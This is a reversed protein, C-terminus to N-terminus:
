VRVTQSFVHIVIVGAIILGMGIVAPTDTIERFAVAGVIALLIIGVGSWIAYAIGVTMTRLVLSLLFFAALYGIVVLLSPGLKTFGEAAKLSSTAIVEAVIALFLYLYTM